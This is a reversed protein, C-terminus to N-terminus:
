GLGRNQKVRISSTSSIGLTCYQYRISTMTLKTVFQSVLYIYIFSRIATFRDINVSLLLGTFVRIAPLTYTGLINPLRHYCHHQYRSIMSSLISLEDNFYQYGIAAIAFLECINAQTAPDERYYIYKILNDCRVRNAIYFIPEVYLIFLDVATITTQEPPFSESIHYAFMPDASNPITLSPQM